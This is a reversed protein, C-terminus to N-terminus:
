GQFRTFIYQTISIGPEFCTGTLQIVSMEIAMKKRKKKSESRIKTVEPMKDYSNVTVSCDTKSANARMAVTKSISFNIKCNNKKKAPSIFIGPFLVHRM